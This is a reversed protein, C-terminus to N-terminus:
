RASHTAVRIPVRLRRRSSRALWCGSLILGGGVTWGAIGFGPFCVSAVLVMGGLFFVDGVLPSRDERGGAQNTMNM